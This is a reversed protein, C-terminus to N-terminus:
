HARHHDRHHSKDKDRLNSDLFHHGENNLILYGTPEPLEMLQM